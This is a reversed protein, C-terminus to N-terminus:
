LSSLRFHRFRATGNSRCFFGVNGPTTLNQDSGALVPVENLALEVRDGDVLLRLRFWENQAFSLGTVQGGDDLFSSTGSRRKGLLRLDPDTQLLAFAFNSTDQFHFVLGIGGPGDSRVDANLVFNQLPGGAVGTNLTLM